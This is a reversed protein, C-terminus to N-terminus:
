IPTGKGLSDTVLEWVDGKYVHGMMNQADVRWFYSTNVELSGLQFMNRGNDLSFQFEVDDMGAMEVAEMSTGLYFHHLNAEFGGRCIVVDRVQSITAGSKPIPYSTKYIKRGLILCYM